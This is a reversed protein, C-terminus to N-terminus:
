RLTSHTIFFIIGLSLIFGVLGGIILAVQYRLVDRLLRARQLPSLEQKIQKKTM